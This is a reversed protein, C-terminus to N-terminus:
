KQFFTWIHVTLWDMEPLFDMHVERDMSLLEKSDLVKLSCIWKPFMNRSFHVHYGQFDHWFWCNEWFPEGPWVVISMLNTDFNQTSGRDGNEFIEWWSGLVMHFVWFITEQGSHRGSNGSSPPPSTGFVRWIQNLDQVVVCLSWIHREPIGWM